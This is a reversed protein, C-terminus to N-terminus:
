SVKPTASEGDIAVSGGTVESAEEDCVLVDFPWVAIALHREVAATLKEDDVRASVGPSLLSRAHRTIDDPSPAPENRVPRGGFRRWQASDIARSVAVHIDLPDGLMPEHPPRPVLWVNTALEGLLREIREPLALASRADPTSRLYETLAPLELLPTGSWLSGPLRVESSGPTARTTGSVVISPRELRSGPRGTLTWQTSEGDWPFVEPEGSRPQVILGHPEFQLTPRRSLSRPRYRLRDQELVLGRWHRRSKAPGKRTSGGVGVLAVAAPMMALVVLMPVLFLNHYWYTLRNVHGVVVTGEPDEPLYRVDILDGSDPNSAADDVDLEAVVTEGDRTVFRVDATAPGRGRRHVDLVRATAPLGSERVSSMQFRSAVVAIGFILGAVALVVVLLWRWRPLKWPLEVRVRVSRNYTPVTRRSGDGGRDVLEPVPPRGSSALCIDSTRTGNADELFM